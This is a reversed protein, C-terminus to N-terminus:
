ILVSHEKRMHDNLFAQTRYILSCLPCKFPIMERAGGSQPTRRASIATETVKPPPQAGGGIPFLTLASAPLETTSNKAFSLGAPAFVPQKKLNKAFIVDLNQRHKLFHSFITPNAATIPFSTSLISPVLAPTTESGNDSDSRTDTSSNRLVNGPVLTIRTGAVFHLAFSFSGILVFTTPISDGESRGLTKVSVNDYLFIVLYIYSFDVNNM